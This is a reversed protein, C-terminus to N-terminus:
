GNKIMKSIEQKMKYEKCMKKFAKEEPSKIRFKNLFWVKVFRLGYASFLPVKIEPGKAQLSEDFNKVAIKAYEKSANKYGKYNGKIVSIAQDYKLSSLKEIIPSVKIM